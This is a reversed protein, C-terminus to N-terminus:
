KRQASKGEGSYIWFRSAFYNLVLIVSTAIVQSILYHLTEDVLLKVIAGNAFTTLATALVFRPFARAHSNRNGFTYRQNMFYNLLAGSIAGLVAGFWPAADLISVLFILVAYHLATGLAGVSAFKVFQLGIKLSPDIM